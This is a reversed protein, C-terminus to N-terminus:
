KYQRLVRLKEEAEAVKAILKDCEDVHQPHEGIGVSNELYIKLTADSEALQAEYRKELAEIIVARLEM